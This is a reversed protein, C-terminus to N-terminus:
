LIVDGKGFLAGNVINIEIAFEAQGDGNLDGQLLGGESDGEFRLQGRKGTFAADLDNPNVWVFPQNGDKANRNADIKSLDIKDLGAEFDWIMDMDTALSDNLDKYDFTDAADDGEIATRDTSLALNHSGGVLEDGKAGGYVVDAGTFGRLWDSNKSGGIFDAGALLKSLFTETGGPTNAYEYVLAADMNIGTVTYLVLDNAVVKATHLTGSPTWSGDPNITLSLNTGTFRTFDTAETSIGTNEDVNYAKYDSGGSITKISNYNFLGSIDLTGMNLASNAGADFTAATFTAM